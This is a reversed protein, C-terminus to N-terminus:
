AELFKTFGWAEFEDQYKKLPKLSLNNEEFFIPADNILAFVNGKDIAILLIRAVEDVSLTEPHIPPDIIEIMQQYLANLEPLASASDYHGAKLERELSGAMFAVFFFNNWGLGEGESTKIEDSFFNDMADMWAETDEVLDKYATFIGAMAGAKYNTDGSVFNTYNTFAGVYDGKTLSLFAQALLLDNDVKKFYPVLAREMAEFKEVDNTHERLLRHAYVGCRVDGQAFGEEFSKLSNELDDLTAYCWGRTRALMPHSGIGNMIELSVEPKSTSWSTAIQMLMAVRREEPPTPNDIVNNLDSEKKKSFIGM